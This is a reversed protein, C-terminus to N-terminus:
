IQDLISVHLWPGQTQNKASQWREGFGARGLDDIDESRKV